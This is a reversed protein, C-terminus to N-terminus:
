TSQQTEFFRKTWREGTSGIQKDGAAANARDATHASIGARRSKMRNRQLAIFRYVFVLGASIRCQRQNRVNPFHRLNAAFFLIDHSSFAQNHRNLSYLDAALGLCM